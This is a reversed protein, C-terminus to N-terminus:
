LKSKITFLKVVQEFTNISNRERKWIDEEIYLPIYKVESQESNVDNCWVVLRKIKRIDDLDERGKTEIIFIEKETKKV